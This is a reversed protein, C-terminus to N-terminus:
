TSHVSSLQIIATIKSTRGLGPRLSSYRPRAASKRGRSSFISPKMETSRKSLRVSGPLIRESEKKRSWFTPDMSKDDKGAKGPDVESFHLISKRKTALADLRGAIKDREERLAAIKAELAADVVPEADGPSLRTEVSAIELNGEATAEVRVSAPDLVAPLGKISLTSAGQPVVIPAIRTIMAADPFVTVADIRSQPELDAAYAPLAFLPAAALFAAKAIRM